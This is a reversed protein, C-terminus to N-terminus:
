DEYFQNFVERNGRQLYFSVFVKEDRAEHLRVKLELEAYQPPPIELEEEGEVDEVEPLDGFDAPQQKVNFKATMKFKTDSLVVDDTDALTFRGESKNEEEYELSRFYVYLQEWVDHAQMATLYGKSMNFAAEDLPESFACEQWNGKLADLEEEELRNRMASSANKAHSSQREALEEQRKKEKIM